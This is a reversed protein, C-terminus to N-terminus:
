KFTKKLGLGGENEDEDWLQTLVWEGEFKVEM